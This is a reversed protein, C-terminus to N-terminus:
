PRLRNLVLRARPQEPNLRLAARAFREADVPNRIALQGVAAEALFMPNAEDLTAARHLLAAANRFDKEAYAFVGRMHLADAFDGDHAIAEDLAGVAEQTSGRRAAAGARHWAKLAKGPVKHSLRYLSVAPAKPRAIVNHQGWEDRDSSSWEPRHRFDFDPQSGPRTEPATEQALLHVALPLLLLPRLM